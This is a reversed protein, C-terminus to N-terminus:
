GAAQARAGTREGLAHWLGYALFGACTAFAFGTAADGTNEDVSECALGNDLRARCLFDVARAEEGALLSNVAALVWPHKAHACGVESFPKDVFSYEYDRSHIWDRTRRWTADSNSCFGYHPLLLLSGPPEDYLRHNGELDVSWAFMSGHPGEVVCHQLIAISVDRAHKSLREAAQGHGRQAELRALDSLARWVLVNDYTVYRQPWPDDSPLLWTKYLAYEPHRERALKQEFLALGDLVEAHKLLSGDATADIYRALALVPACLEDLEFGPELVSGNIYRSHIGFNRRQVAFVGLLAERAYAPDLALLSPFSWLLSDRDWYAGSVYYRPSRSTVCVVQETDLTRGTAFFRNFFANENMLRTLGEPVSRRLRRSRRELWALSAQELEARGIRRLEEASALAGIEDLGLGIHFVLELAQGPGLETSASWELRIEKESVLSRTSPDNDLPAKVEHGDVWARRELGPGLACVALALKPEPARYELVPIRYWSEPVLCRSGALANTRNITHLVRAWNLTLGVRVTHTGNSPNHVALVLVFGRQEPPCLYFGSGVLEGREARFRPLWDHERQWALAGPVLLNVGDVELQPQLLASQGGDFNLLGNMGFHLVNVGELAGDAERLTPLSVVENGTPLYAPVM